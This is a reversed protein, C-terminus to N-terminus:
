AAKEIDTEQGADNSPEDGAAGGAAGGEGLAKVLDRPKTLGLADLRAQLQSCAAQVHAQADGVVSMLATLDAASGSIAQESAQANAGEARLIHHFLWNAAHDVNRCYALTEEYEQGANKSNAGRHKVVVVNISYWDARLRYGVVPNPTLDLAM